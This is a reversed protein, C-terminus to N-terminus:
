NSGGVSFINHEKFYKNIEKKTIEDLLQHYKYVGTLKSEEILTETSYESLSHFGLEFIKKHGQSWNNYDLLIEKDEEVFNFHSVIVPGLIFKAWKIKNEDKFFYTTDGIQSNYYNFFGYIFYIELHKRMKPYNEYKMRLSLVGDLYEKLMNPEDISHIAERLQNKNMKVYDKTKLSPFFQELQRIEYNLILELYDNSSREKEEEEEEIPIHPEKVIKKPTPVKIVKGKTLINIQNELEAIKKKLDKKKM